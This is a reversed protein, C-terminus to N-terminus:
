ETIQRWSKSVPLMTTLKSKVAESQDAQSRKLTM